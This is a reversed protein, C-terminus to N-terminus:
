FLSPYLGLRPCWTAKFYDIFEPDNVQDKILLEFSDMNEDGRCVGDM